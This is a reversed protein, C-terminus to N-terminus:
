LFINREVRGRALLADFEHTLNQGNAINNVPM